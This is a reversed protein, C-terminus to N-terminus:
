KANTDDNKNNSFMSRNIFLNDGSLLCETLKRWNISTLMQFNFYM